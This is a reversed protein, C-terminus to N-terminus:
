EPDQLLEELRRTVEADTSSKLAERLSGHALPGLERLTKTASERVKWQPDGLDVLLLGIRRMLANDTVPIPNALRLLHRTPIDWAFGRGEVRLHNQELRGTVHGGGWLEAKFVRVVSTSGDESIDQLERISAPALSLPGSDTILTLTATTIRGVLRLDGTLEVFSSAPEGEEEPQKIALPTIINRIQGLDIDQVGLSTTALKVIGSQPMVRMRSGDQLFLMGGLSEEDQNQLAIVEAWPIRLIGFPSRTLFDGQPQISLREGNWLEILPSTLAPEQPTSQGLIIRDPKPLALDAGGILTFHLGPTELTGFWRQGDRLYIWSRAEQTHGPGAIAAIRDWAISTKDASRSMSVSSAAAQGKLLSNAGLALQDSNGAAVGWFENPFWDGLGYAGSKGGLNVASKLTAKSLGKTLRGINLSRCAKAIDDPTRQTGLDIQAIGHVLSQTQGAPLTLTYFVSMQYNSRTTMRLPIDSKPARLTFLVAPAKTDSDGPLGIFGSETPELSDKIVRGLNSHIAKASNNFSHRLEVSVTMDRSTTNLFEDVYRLAGEREMFTIRRTISLGNLPQQTTMIIEKGDPTTMPQQSYFQQSGFQLMMCSGIMSPASSNRQLGGNQEIFWEHTKADTLVTPQYPVTAQQQAQTCLSLMSFFLIFRSSSM